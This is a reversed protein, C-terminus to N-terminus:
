YRFHSDNEIKAQNYSTTNFQYYQHKIKKKKLKWQWPQLSTAAMLALEAEEPVGLKLPGGEESSTWRALLLALPEEGEKMQQQVRGDLAVMVDQCSEGRHSGGVVATRQHLEGEEEGLPCFTDHGGEM